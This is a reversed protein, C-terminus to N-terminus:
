TYAMFGNKLVQVSYELFYPLFCTKSWVLFPDFYSIQFAQM